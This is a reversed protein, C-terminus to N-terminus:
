LVGTHLAQFLTRLPPDDDVVLIHKKILEM